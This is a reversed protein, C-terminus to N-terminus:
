ADIMAPRELMLKLEHACVECDGTFGTPIETMEYETDDGDLMEEAQTWHDDCIAMWERGKHSEIIILKM